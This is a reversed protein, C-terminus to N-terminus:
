HQHGGPGHPHGHSVEEETADRIDVVQIAFHLEHGALPHNHDVYVSDGEIRDIWLIVMQGDQTEAKFMMGESLEADDPFMARPVEEPEGDREGYGEAPPVVTDFADGKDKGTLAKELGPVINGAGHLYSLPEQGQSSDLTEGSSSKLTYHISVVKGNEITM